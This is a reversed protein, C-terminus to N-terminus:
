LQKFVSKEKGFKQKESDDGGIFDKFHDYGVILKTKGSVPDFVRYKEQQHLSSYPLDEKKNAIETLDNTKSFYVIEGVGAGEFNYLNSYTKQLPYQDPFIDGRTDIWGDSDTGKFTTQHFPILIPIIDVGKMDQLTLKSFDVGNKMQTGGGLILSRPAVCKLIQKNRKDSHSVGIKQKVRVNWVDTNSNYSVYSKPKRTHSWLTGGNPAVRYLDYGEVYKKRLLAVGIPINVNRKTLTKMLKVDKLKMYIYFLLVCASSALEIRKNYHINIIERFKDFCETNNSLVLGENGSYHSVDLTKGFHFENRESLKPTDVMFTFKSSHTDYEPTYVLMTEVYTSSGALMIDTDALNNMETIFKSRSTNNKALTTHAGLNALTYWLISKCVNKIDDGFIESIEGNAVEIDNTSLVKLDNYAKQIILWMYNYTYGYKSRSADNYTDANGSLDTQKATFLDFIADDLRVNEYRPFLTHSAFDLDKSGTLTIGNNYKIDSFFVHDPNITDLEDVINNFHKFFKELPKYIKYNVDTDKIQKSISRMGIYSSCFIPTTETKIDYFDDANVTENKLRDVNSHVISLLRLLAGPDKYKTTTMKGTNLMNFVDNADKYISSDDRLLRNVDIRESHTSSILVSHLLSDSCYKLGEKTISGDDIDGYKVDDMNTVTKPNENLTEIVNDNDLHLYDLCDHLDVRTWKNLSFDDVEVSRNRSEYQLRNNYSNINNVGNPMIIYSNLVHLTLTPDFSEMQGLKIPPQLFILSGNQSNPVMHKFMNLHERGGLEGVPLFNDGGNKALMTEPKMHAMYTQVGEGTIFIKTNGGTDNEYKNLDADIQSLPDTATYFFGFFKTEKAAMALFVTKKDFKSQLYFLISDQIMYFGDRWLRELLALELNVGIIFMKAEYLMRGLKSEYFTGYMSMATGRLTSSGTTSTAEYGTFELDGSGYATEKAAEEHFSILTYTIKKGTINLINPAVLSIYSNRRLNEIIPELSQIAVLNVEMTEEPDPLFITPNMSRQNTQEDGALKGFFDEPGFEIKSTDISGPGSGFPFSTTQSSTSGNITSFGFRDM